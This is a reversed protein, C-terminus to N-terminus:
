KDSGAGAAPGPAGPGGRRGGPGGPFGPGGLGPPMGMGPGGGIGGFGAGTTSAAAEPVPPYIEQGRIYGVITVNYTATLIPATGTLALGDCVALYHPMNKYARVNDMIQQYTGQVRIQGLDFIVVPFSLAPFNYFSALLSNSENVDPVPIEPAQLVKVGGKKIQANVARQINNRFAQTDIALQFADVSLDIGGSGVTKGPTSTQVVTQWADDKVKMMALAKKVRKDAAGQQAAQDNQLQTNADYAKADASNPMYEHFVGWFVAILCVMIGFAYIAIPGLKM